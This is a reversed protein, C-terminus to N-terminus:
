KADFISELLSRARVYRWNANEFANRDVGLFPEVKENRPRFLPLSDNGATFFKGRM